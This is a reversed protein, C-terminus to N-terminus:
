RAFCRRPGNPIVKRNVMKLRFQTNMKPVTLAGQRSRAFSADAARVALHEEAMEFNMLQQTPRPHRPNKFAITEDIGVANERRPRSIMKALPNACEPLTAAVFAEQRRLNAIAQM